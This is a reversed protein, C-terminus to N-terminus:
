NAQDLERWSLRGTRADSIGEIRYALTDRGGSVFLFDTGGEGGLTSVDVLVGDLDQQNFLVGGAFYDDGVKVMDKADIVGDRSFDILPRGLDGGTLADFLLISGSRTGFCSFEDLAPLVTTTIIAGDRFLFRRIAREGPYQPGPLPRGSLDEGPAGSTTVTARPMDLDIYWGYTGTTEGAESCGTSTCNQPQYTVAARTLIRRVVSPDAGDDIVNTLTQEVLRESRTDANATAPASEGRDWIAYISQIEDNRADERAVFSGTGFIVLFGQETPHKIVLPQTLIPQITKSTGEGYGATFLRASFWNDPNPDRLDFRFLNGLRDGAYVFDVTGNLDIDVATPTGLGNPYGALPHPATQVGFGTDVKVFDGPDGWGDIGRDVFLVFLRAFGATSNPGNGFIAVWEKQGSDVANSMAVTPLSLSYGLDRVPNGSPDLLAGDAGGLFDGDADLPYTDDEDTFEWLVAKGATTETAFMGVPDTVDLAFFGKGGAGLGGMLVTRWAKSGPNSPSKVYADNLRPTLDVYYRHQYFPSTFESLASRYRASSDIIKNPVYGFMEKGTVGNFGHLIGDNAGVYVGPPPNAQERAFTSYLDEVPYPTQDRNIARPAGVFVPSSNVIDGLL